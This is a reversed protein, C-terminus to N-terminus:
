CATVREVGALYKDTFQYDGTTTQDNGLQRAQSNIDRNGLLYGAKLQAKARAIEAPTREKTQILKIEKEIAAELKPLSKGVEM